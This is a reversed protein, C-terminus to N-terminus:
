FARDQICSTVFCQKTGLVLALFMRKDHTWVSRRMVFDSCLRMLWLNWFVCAHWPNIVGSQQCVATYFYCLAVTQPWNLWLSFQVHVYVWLCNIALLCNPCRSNPTFVIQSHVPWIQVFILNLLNFITKWESCVMLVINQSTICYRYVYNSRHGSSEETKSGPRIHVADRRCLLFCSLFGALSEPESSHPSLQLGLQDPNLDIRNGSIFNCKHLFLGLVICETWLWTDTLRYVHFKVIIKKLSWISGLETPPELKEIVVFSLTILYYKKKKKDRCTSKYMCLCHIYTMYRHMLNVDDDM